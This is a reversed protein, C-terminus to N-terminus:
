GGEFGGFVIVRKIEIVKKRTIPIRNGVFKRYKIYSIQSVIPPKSPQNVWPHLGHVCLCACLYMAISLFPLAYFVHWVLVAMDTLRSCFSKLTLLLLSQEVNEKKEGKECKGGNAERLTKAFCEKKRRVKIEMKKPILNILTLEYPKKAWKRACMRWM